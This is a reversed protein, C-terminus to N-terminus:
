SSTPPRSRPTSTPSARGHGGPRSRPRPARRRGGGRGRGDGARGAGGLAHVIARAAGGAGLVLVGTASTSAKTACRARPLGDGDTSIVSSCATAIARHTNVAGLARRTPQARRVRGRPTRRTRCRSTSAPSASRASAGRGRRRGQGRPVPFAVYVWDLGLAAFAANHIAPSRSHAVPDGIIGAVRPRRRESDRGEGGPRPM